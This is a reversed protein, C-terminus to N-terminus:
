YAEQLCHSKLFIDLAAIPFVFPTRLFICVSLCFLPSLVCLCLTKYDKLHLLFGISEGIPAQLLAFTDSHCLRPCTLPLPFSFISYSFFDVSIVFLHHTPFFRAYSLELCTNSFFFAQLPLLVRSMAQSHALSLPSDRDELKQKRKRWKKKEKKEM